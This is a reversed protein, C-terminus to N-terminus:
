GVALLGRMNPHVDCLYYYEGADLQMTVRSEAPGNEIDTEGVTEGKRSNGRHFSINHPQGDDENELVVTVVGAQAELEKTDFKLDDAVITLTPGAAADLTPGATAADASTAEGDAGSGDDGGGCAGGAALVAVASVVIASWRMVRLGEWGKRDTDMQTHM